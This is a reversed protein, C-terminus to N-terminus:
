NYTSLFNFIQLNYVRNTLYQKAQIPPLSNAYVENESLHKRKNFAIGKYKGSLVSNRKFVTTRESKRNNM